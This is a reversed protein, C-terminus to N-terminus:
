HEFPSQKGAAVRAALLKRLREVLDPRATALDHLESRDSRTDFLHLVGHEDILKWVGDVVATVGGPNSRDKVMAAFAFGGTPDPRRAGTALAGFPAGDFAAHTARFGALELITPALDTLSVTEDIMGHTISPGAIVLPVRLQSNYLDTSHYPHGHEGLGEGHDATVIVIPWEEPPRHEFASLVEKLMADCAALARDYTATREAETHTQPGFTTWNHPELVHMWM